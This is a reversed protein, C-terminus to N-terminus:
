TGGGHRGPVAEYKRGINPLIIAASLGVNRRHRLWILLVLAGAVIGAFLLDEITTVNLLSVGERSVPAACDKTFQFEVNRYRLLSLSVVVTAIGERLCVYHLTLERSAGAELVNGAKSWVDNGSLYGQVLVRLLLPQDVTVVANSFHLPGDDVTGVHRVFFTSEHKKQAVDAVSIPVKIRGNPGFLRIRERRAVRTGNMVVNSKGPETGICLTRPVGGGCDKILTAALDDWPPVPLRFLVTANGLAVCEYMISMVTAVGAVVTGNGSDGRLSVKVVGPDDSFVEAPLFPQALVPPLVSVHMETVASTPPIVLQESRPPTYLSVVNGSASLYAVDLLKNVGSRCEKGWRLVLAESGNLASQIRLAIASFGSEGKACRYLVHFPLWKSDKGCAWGQVFPHASGGAASVTVLPCTGNKLKEEGLSVEFEARFDHEGDVRCGLERMADAAPASTSVSVNVCAAWRGQLVGRDIVREAKFSDAVGPAAATRLDVQSSFSAAAVALQQALALAFVVLCLAHNLAMRPQPDPLRPAAPPLQVEAPRTSRDVHWLCVATLQDQARRLGSPEPSTGRAADQRPQIQRCV